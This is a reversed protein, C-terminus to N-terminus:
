SPRSKAWDAGTGRRGAMLEPLIKECFGDRGRDGSKARPRLKQRKHHGDLSKAGVCIECWARCSFHTLEPEIRARATPECPTAPQKQTTRDPQDQITEHEESELNRKREHEKASQSMVRGPQVYPEQSSQRNQTFFEPAQRTSSTSATPAGSCPKFITMAGSDPGKASLTPRTADTVEFNLSMKNDDAAQFKGYHRLPEGFVSPLNLQQEPGVM